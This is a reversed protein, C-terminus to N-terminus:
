KQFAASHLQMCEAIHHIILVADRLAIETDLEAIRSSIQVTPRAFHSAGLVAAPRQILHSHIQYMVVRWVEREVAVAAAAVVVCDSDDTLTWKMMM